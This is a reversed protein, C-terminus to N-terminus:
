GRSRIPLVWIVGLLGEEVQRLANAVLADVDGIWCDVRFPVWLEGAGLEALVSGGFAESLSNL